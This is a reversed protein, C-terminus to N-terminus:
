NKELNDEIAEKICEFVNDISMELDKNASISLIVLGLESFILGLNGEIQIKAKDNIEDYEVHVM